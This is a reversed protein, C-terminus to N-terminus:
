DVQEITDETSTDLAWDISAAVVLRPGPAASPGSAADRLASAFERVTAFRCEPPKSLARLLVMDVHECLAPDFASPRPPLDEAQRRMVEAVSAGGIPRRGVLLEFALVALAYQDSRADAPKGQCLEPAMYAPTGLLRRELSYTAPEQVLRAIGFDSLLPWNSRTLLVNAPKVDLHVVGRQHLYDLGDALREILRVAATVGTLGVRAPLRERLTGGYALQMVLYVLEEEQGVDYVSILNPHRLGAMRRFEAVFRVVAHRDLALDAHLVKVAVDDGLSRRSARYVMGTAGKGLLDGLRYEGNKLIRSTLVSLDGHPALM